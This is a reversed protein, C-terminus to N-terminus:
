VHLEPDQVPQYVDMTNCGNISKKLLHQVACFLTCLFPVSSIHHQYAASDIFYYDIIVCGVVDYM